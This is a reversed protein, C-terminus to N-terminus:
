VFVKTIASGGCLRRLAATARCAHRGKYGIITVNTRLPALPSLSRHRFLARHLFMGFGNPNQKSELIRFGSDDIKFGLVARRRRLAHPLYHMSHQDRYAVSELSHHRQQGRM